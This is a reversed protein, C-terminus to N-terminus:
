CNSSGLFLKFFFFFLFMSTPRSQDAGSYSNTHLVNIEFSFSLPMRKGFVGIYTMKMLIIGFKDWHLTSMIGVNWYATSCWQMEGESPDHRLFGQKLGLNSHNAKSCCAKPSWTGPEWAHWIAKQQASVRATMFKAAPLDTSMTVFKQVSSNWQSLRPIFNRSWVSYHSAM